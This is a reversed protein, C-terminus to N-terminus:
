NSYYHWSSREYSGIAGNTAICRIPWNKEIALCHSMICEDQTSMVGLSETTLWFRIIHWDSRADNMLEGAGCVVNTAYIGPCDSGPEGGAM